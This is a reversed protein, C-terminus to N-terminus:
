DCNGIRRDCKASTIKLLIQGRKGLDRKQRSAWNQACDKLGGTAIAATKDFLAAQAFANYVDQLLDSKLDCYGGNAGHGM